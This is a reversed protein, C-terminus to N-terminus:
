CCCVVFFLFLVLFGKRLGWGVWQMERTEKTLSSRSPARCMVWKEKWMGLETTVQTLTWGELGCTGRHLYRQGGDQWIHHNM